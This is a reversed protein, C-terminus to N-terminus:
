KRVLTPGSSAGLRTAGFRLFNLAAARTRIGGSAKVGRNAGALTAMCAVDAVRAGSPAFGTSTKIFDAGAALAAISAKVLQDITLFHTELIAKTRVGPHKQATQVVAAVAAYTHWIDDERMSGFPIVMDVERAGNEIVAETEARLAALDTTGFPFGVVVCPVVDSGQLRASVLAIHQPNVCVARFNYALAEQCLNEIDVVSAEPKLLTHEIAGLLAAQPDAVTLPFAPEAPREVKQWASAIDPATWRLETEVAAILQRLWPQVERWKAALVDTDQGADLQRWAEEYRGEHWEWLRKAKDFIWKWNDYGRENHRAEADQWPLYYARELEEQQPAPEVSEDIAELLFLRVEKRIPQGDREIDYAVRGLPALIRAEIGTEEEIERVAAMEWTEGAELHGKPFATHGYADDILLVELGATTQRVVLGGAAREIKKM